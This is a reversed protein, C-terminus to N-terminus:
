LGHLIKCAINLLFVCFWAAEGNVFKLSIVM